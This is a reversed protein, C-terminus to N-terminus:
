KSGLFHIYAEHIEYKKTVDNFWKVKASQGCTISSLNCNVFQTLTVIEKEKDKLYQIYAHTITQKSCSSM